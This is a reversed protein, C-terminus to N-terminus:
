CVLEAASLAEIYQAFGADDAPRGIPPDGDWQHRPQDFLAGGYIHLARSPLDPPAAVEHVIDHALNIVDGPGCRTTDGQSLGSDTRHYETNDEFGSWTGIVAWVLHDHIGTRFGPPLVVHQITLEPSHHLIGVDRGLKTGLFAELVPPDSVARKVIQHIDAQPSPGRVARLCEDIFQGRDFTSM